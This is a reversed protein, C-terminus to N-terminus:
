AHDEQASRVGMLPRGAVASGQELLSRSKLIEREQRLVENEKWLRKLEQQEATLAPRGRGPFAQEGADQAAKIWKQLASLLTGLDRAASTINETSQALRVADRKFEATYTRRNTM